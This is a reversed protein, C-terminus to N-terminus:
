RQSRVHATVERMTRVPIDHTDRYEEILRFIRSMRDYDGDRTLNNPHLWLHFVGDDRQCLADLGREVQRVVPDDTVSEVVQKAVGEFSFLFLSAPVNVLGHEDVTPDVLPPTTPGATYSVVKGIPRIYTDQYWRSPAVGRYASFGCDKLVDLHGVNNRPFVFSDLTYGREAAVRRSREIEARAIDRTTSDDGIEVHSFTHSGIEHNTDSDAIAEVLSRGFWAPSTDEDGGPDREFWEEHSPHADHSGSCSELLLHGVVAWTCPISHADLQDLLWLWAERSQMARDRTQDKYDHVGWSLEADLSIVVARM